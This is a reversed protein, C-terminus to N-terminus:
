LMATRWDWVEPNTVLMPDSRDPPSKDNGVLEVCVYSLDPGTGTKSCGLPALKVGLSTHAARIDDRFLACLQTLCLLALLPVTITTRSRSIHSVIIHPM